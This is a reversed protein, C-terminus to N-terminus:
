PAKHGKPQSMRQQIPAQPRAQTPHIRRQTEQVNAINLRPSFVTLQGRKSNFNLTPSDPRYNRNLKLAELYWVAILQIMQQSRNENRGSGLLAWLVPVKSNLHWERWEIDIKCRNKSKSLSNSVDYKFSQTGMSVWKPAWKNCWAKTSAQNRVIASRM